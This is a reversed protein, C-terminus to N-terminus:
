QAPQSGHQYEPHRHRHPPPATATARHRPPPPPSPPPTATATATTAPPKLGGEASKCGRSLSHTHTIPRLIIPASRPWTGRNATPSAEDGRSNTTCPLRRDSHLTHSCGLFPLRPEWRVESSICTSSNLTDDRTSGLCSGFKRASVTSSGHVSPSGVANAAVPGLSVLSRDFSLFPLLDSSRQVWRLRLCLLHPAGGGVSNM